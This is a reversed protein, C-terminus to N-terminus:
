GLDGQPVASSTTEARRGRRPRFLSVLRAVMTALFIQGTIAELVALRKGLATVPALDGFGTTTLTIFSFYSYDDSGVAEGFLQASGLHDSAAYASSFAFGILLYACFAGAITQGTVEEHQAIRALVAVLAGTAVLATCVAAWGRASDSAGSALAVLAVLAVLGSVIALAAWRFAGLGTCFVVVLIVVIYLGASVLRMAASDELGGVVFLALLLVLLRGFRDRPEAPLWRFRM